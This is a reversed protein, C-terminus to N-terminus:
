VCVYLIDTFTKELVKISVQLIVNKKKKIEKESKCQGYYFCPNVSPDVMTRHGNVLSDIM